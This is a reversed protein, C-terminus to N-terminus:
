NAHWMVGAMWPWCSPALCCSNYSQILIIDDLRAFRLQLGQASWQWTESCFHCPLWTQPIGAGSDRVSLASAWGPVPSPGLLAPSPSGHNSGPWACPSPVSPIFEAWASTAVRPFPLPNSHTPKIIGAASLAEFLVLSLSCCSGALLPSVFGTWLSLTLCTLIFDDMNEQASSSVLM